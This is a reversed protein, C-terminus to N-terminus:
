FDYPLKKKTVKTTMDFKFIARLPLCKNKDINLTIKKVKIDRELMVKDEELNKLADETEMIKKNLLQKSEELQLSERLLRAHTSDSCAENDPRHSRKELRTQTLKVPALKDHHSAKLMKLEKKALVIEKEVLKRHDILKSHAIQTENIRERCFVLM